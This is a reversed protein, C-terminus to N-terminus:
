KLIARIRKSVALGKIYLLYMVICLSSVFFCIWWGM